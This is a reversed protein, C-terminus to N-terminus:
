PKAELAARLVDQCDRLDAVTTVDPGWGGPHQSEADNVVRDLTVLVDNVAERLGSDPVPHAPTWGAARLGDAYRTTALEILRDPSVPRGSDPVPHAALPHFEVVTSVHPEGGVDPSPEWHERVEHVRYEVGPILVGSGLSGDILVRCPLAEPTTDTM